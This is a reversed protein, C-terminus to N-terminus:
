LPSLEAISGDPLHAIISVNGQSDNVAFANVLIDGGLAPIEFCADVTADQGVDFGVRIAANPLDVDAAIDGFNFDTLLPMVPACQDDVVWVDVPTLAGLAGAHVVNLRNNGAPIGDSNELFAGVGFGNDDGEPAVYGAAYIEWKEGEGLAFDSVTFVSDDITGGSPVVDFDYTGVPLEVYDTGQKFAFTIGSNEGNVFIDVDTGTDNPFVGLHVLRLMGTAAAGDGDGPAGDGDGPAGDGDGPAGDGDGPAGDGDGATTDGDGDGTTDQANTTTTEGDDGGCATFM